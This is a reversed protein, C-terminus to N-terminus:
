SVDGVIVISSWVGSLVSPYWAIGHSAMGECCVFGEKILWTSKRVVNRGVEEEEGGGGGGVRGGEREEWRIVRIVSCQKEKPVLCPGLCHLWLCLYNFKIFGIELDFLYM